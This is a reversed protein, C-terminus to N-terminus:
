RPIVDQRARETWIDRIHQDEHEPNNPVTMIDPEKSTGEKDLGLRKRWREETTSITENNKNRYYTMDKGDAEAQKYDEEKDYCTIMTESDKRNFYAKQRIYKELETQDSSMLRDAKFIPYQEKWENNKIWASTVTGYNPSCMTKDDNYYCWPIGYDDQLIELIGLTKVVEECHNCFYELSYKHHVDLFQLIFWCLKVAHAFPRENVGKKRLRTKYPM